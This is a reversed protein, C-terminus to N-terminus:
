GRLQAQRQAWAEHLRVASIVEAYGLRLAVENIDVEKEFLMAGYSNRLHQATVLGIGPYSKIVPFFFDRIVRAVTSAHMGQDNKQTCFVLADKDEGMEKRRIELWQSLWQAGEGSLSQVRALHASTGLVRVWVSADSNPTLHSLRLALAESVKLGCLLFLSALARDRLNRKPSKGNADLRKTGLGQTCSRMHDCLIQREPALYFFTADNAQAQKWHPDFLVQYSRVPNHLNANAQLTENDVCQLMADYAREILRLYRHRQNLKNEVLSALFGKIHAPKIDLLDLKQENCWQTFVGWQARYVTFSRQGFGQNLLWSQFALDPDARWEALGKNFLSDTNRSLAPKSRLPHKTQM